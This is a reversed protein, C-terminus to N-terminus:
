YCSKFPSVVLSLPLFNAHLFFLPPFYFFFLPSLFPTLCSYSFLHHPIFDLRFTLTGSLWRSCDQTQDWCGAFFRFRLTDSSATNFLTSFFTDWKVFFLFLRLFICPGFKSFCINKIGKIVFSSCIYYYRQQVM